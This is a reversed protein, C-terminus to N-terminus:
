STVGVPRESGHWVWGRQFYKLVITGFSDKDLNYSFIIAFYIRTHFIDSLKRNAVIRRNENENKVMLIPWALSLKRSIVVDKRSLHSCLAAYDTM